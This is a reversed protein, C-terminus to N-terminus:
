ASKIFDRLIKLISDNNFAKRSRMNVLLQSHIRFGLDFKEKKSIRNSIKHIKKFINDYSDIIKKSYFDKSGIANNPLKVRKKDDNISSKHLIYRLEGEGMIHADSKHKNKREIVDYILGRNLQIPKNLGLSKTTKLFDKHSYTRLFDAKWDDLFHYTLMPDIESRENSYDLIEQATLERMMKRLQRIIYFYIGSSGYLFIFMTGRKKLVRNLERLCKDTNAAHHIVGYSFVHDFSASEFPLNQIDACHFNIGDSDELTHSILEKSVSINESSLDVADITTPNLSHLFLIERGPGCGAILVRKNEIYTKFKIKNINFRKNYVKSIEKIKERNLNKNALAFNVSKENM